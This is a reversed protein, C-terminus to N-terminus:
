EKPTEMNKNQYVNKNKKMRFIIKTYRREFGRIHNLLEKDEEKRKRLKYSLYKIFERNEYLCNLEDNYGINRM